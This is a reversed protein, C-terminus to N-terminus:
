DSVDRRKGFIYARHYELYPFHAPDTQRLPASLDVGIRLLQEVSATSSILMSGDNAFSILGSDFAADHSPSLLLGNFPDLREVNNSHRWPRIHSARLLPLLAVGTVACTGRWYDVLKKRFKGQGVRSQIIAQKETESIDLSTIAQSIDHDAATVGVLETLKENVRDLLFEGAEPPVSFLYGQVGTRNVTLPSYESPLLPELQDAVAPISIPHSLEQYSADVRWGLGKWVGAARFEAPQSAGYAATGALSIAQIQKDVFSFIVDGPQVHTMATWHHEPRGNKNLQPAWLYGGDREHRYTKNQSVWWFAM